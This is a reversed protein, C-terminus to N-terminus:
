GPSAAACCRCRTSAHGPTARVLAEFGALQDPQIDIFFFAPAEVPLRNEVERALNGQVLAVTVLVTLGIGLSLVIQATPAGPPASQGAGLATGPPACGSGGRLSSLPQERPASSPSLLPPVPSSGCGSRAIRRAESRSPPLGSRWYRARPLRRWRCGAGPGTSPTM